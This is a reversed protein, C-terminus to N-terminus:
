TVFAPPVGDEDTLLPHIITSLLIETSIEWYKIM